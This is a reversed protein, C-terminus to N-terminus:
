GDEQNKTLAQAAPQIETVNVEVHGADWQEWAYILFDDAIQDLSVTYGNDRYWAQVDRLLEATTPDIRYTFRPRDYRRRKTRRTPDQSLLEAAETPPDRDHTLQIGELPNKPTV